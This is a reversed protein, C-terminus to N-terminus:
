EGVAALRLLAGCLILVAISGWFLIDGVYPTNRMLYAFGLWTLIIFIMTALCAIATATLQRKAPREKKSPDTM